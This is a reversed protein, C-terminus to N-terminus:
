PAKPVFNFGMHIRLASGPFEDPLPPFPAADTIARMATLDYYRNGSSDEVSVNAVQGDRGIEFTIVPQRGQRALGEWRDTVKRNVAALYLRLPTDLADPPQACATGTGLVAALVAFCLVVIMRTTLVGILEVLGRTRDAPADGPRAAAGAEGAAM